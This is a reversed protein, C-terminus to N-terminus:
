IIGTFNNLLITNDEFYSQDKLSDSRMSFGNQSDFGISNTESKIYWKFIGNSSITTYLIDSKDVVKMQSILWSGNNHAEILTLPKLFQEEDMGLLLLGVKGLKYDEKFRPTYGIGSVEDIIFKIENDNEIGDKLSIAKANGFQVFNKRKKDVKKISPKINTFQASFYNLAILSFGWFSVSTSVINICDRSLANTWCQDYINLVNDYQSAVASISLLIKQPKTKPSMLDVFQQTITNEKSIILILFILSLLISKTYLM